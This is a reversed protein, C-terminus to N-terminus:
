MWQIAGSCGVENFLYIDPDIYSAEVFRRSMWPLIIAINIINQVNHHFHPPKDGPFINCLRPYLEGTARGCSSSKFLRRQDATYTDTVDM